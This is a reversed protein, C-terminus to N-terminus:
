EFEFGDPLLEKTLLVAQTREECPFTIVQQKESSTLSDNLLIVGRSLLKEAFITGLVYSDKDLMGFYFVSGMGHHKYIFHMKALVWDDSNSFEYGSVSFSGEFYDSKNFFHLLYRTYTGEIEISVNEQLEANDFEWKVGAVNTSIDYKLPFMNLGIFLIGAFLVVVGLKYCWKMRKSDGRNEM